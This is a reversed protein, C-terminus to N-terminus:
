PLQQHHPALTPLQIDLPRPCAAHKARVSSCFLVRGLGTSYSTSVQGVTYANLEPLLVSLSPRNGTFTRHPILYDPVNQARLEDRTKGYALADAQRPLTTLFSVTLVSPGLITCSTHSGTM